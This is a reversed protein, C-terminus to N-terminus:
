AKEEKNKPLFVRYDRLRLRFLAFGLCKKERFVSWVTRCQFTLKMKKVLKKKIKNLEWRDLKLEVLFGVILM